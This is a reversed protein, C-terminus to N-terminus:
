RLALVQVACTGSACVVAVTRMGVINGSASQHATYSRSAGAIIENDASTATGGAWDVYIVTGGSANKNEVLISRAQFGFTILTSTTTLAANAYNYYKDVAQANGILLFLVVLVTVFARMFARPNLSQLWTLM